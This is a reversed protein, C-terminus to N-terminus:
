QPNEGTAVIAQFLHLVENPVFANLVHILMVRTALNRVKDQCDHNAEAALLKEVFNVHGNKSAWILVLEDQPLLLFFSSLYIIFQPKTENNLATEQEQFQIGVITVHLAQM